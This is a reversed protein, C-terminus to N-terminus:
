RNLLDFSTLSEELGAFLSGAAPGVPVGELNIVIVENMKVFLRVEIQRIGTPLVVEKRIGDLGAIKVPSWDPNDNRLEMLSDIPTNRVVNIQLRTRPTGLGIPSTAETLRNAFGVELKDSVVVRYNGAENKIVQRGNGVEFGSHATQAFAVFFLPLGVVLFRKVFNSHIM